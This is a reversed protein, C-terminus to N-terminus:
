HRGRILTVKVPVSTKSMREDSTLVTARREIALALCARDAASLGRSRVLPWIRASETAQSEDFSVVAVDLNRVRRMAGAVDAGKEVCKKLVEALNVASLLGGQLHPVVKQYGTEGNLVALIASADLVVSNV